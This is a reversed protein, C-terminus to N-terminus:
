RQEGRFEAEAERQLQRTREANFREGAETPTPAPVPASECPCPPDPPEQDGYWDAWLGDRCVFAWCCPCNPCEAYPASQDTM